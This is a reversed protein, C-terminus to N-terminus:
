IKATRWIKTSRTSPVVFQRGVWFLLSQHNIFTRHKKKFRHRRNVDAGAEILIKVIEVLKPNRKNPSRWLVGFAALLPSTTGVVEHRPHKCIGISYPKYTVISYTTSVECDTDASSNCLLRVKFIDQQELATFLPMLRSKTKKLVNAGLSVLQETASGSSVFLPTIEEDRDRTQQRVGGPDDVDAGHVALLQILEASGVIAACHIPPCVHLLDQRQTRHNGPRHRGDMADEASRDILAQAGRNEVLTDFQGAGRDSSGLAPM